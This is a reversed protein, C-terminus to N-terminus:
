PTAFNHFLIYEVLITYLELPTYGQLSEPIRFRVLLSVAGACPSGNAAGRVFKNSCLYIWQVIYINPNNTSCMSCMYKIQQVFRNMQSSIQQVFSNKIQKQQVFKPLKSFKNFM